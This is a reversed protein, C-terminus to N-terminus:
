SNNARRSIGCTVTLLIFSSFPSGLRDLSLALTWALFALYHIEFNGIFFQRSYAINKIKVVFNSSSYM